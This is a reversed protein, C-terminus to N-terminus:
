LISPICSINGYKALANGILESYTSGTIWVQEGNPLTVHIRQRGMNLDGEVTPMAEENIENDLNQDTNYVIEEMFFLFKLLYCLKVCSFIPVFNLHM